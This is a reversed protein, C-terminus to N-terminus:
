LGKAAALAAACDEAAPALWRAAVHQDPRILYVAAAAAGLYRRRLWEDAALRIATAGEIEPPDCDLGLLTFGGGLRSLLWGNGVPADPCPRGPATAAPLAPEDPGLFRSPPYACPLSLRGSNVMGRAFPAHAALALVADRFTREVGPAPTMFKTARTSNLINEDAGCRREADYSEILAEGAEGNLVAALKWGLNDVDQLGGNGGRAGFPSVVHASDGVFVVRGHAFRELRRCQFTYVSVWDLTFPRGEVVKEIRPIVKEPKKEEEPDADWGLQLDIRYIDDPQKHLLASQGPHFTPEFWFWREAPFEAKMVIDAILFREEFLEGAFDLGMIRRIPSGAGDCALLWDAEIRYPGEPTEVTAVAHDEFREVATVRNRFRLDILDPFDRCREVLYQEVYYQQLNIFAPMKHGDEPLLDFRFVEEDRHRTRGIKWTVGKAVMREGVGLRDLIELSRKAWCIARSGVSVVNNDDLVVSPVGRLALDVALALGIPGAGVIVAPKRGETMGRLPPPTVYPFEEYDYPM